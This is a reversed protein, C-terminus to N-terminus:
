RRRRRRQENRRAKPKAELGNGDAALRRALSPGASAPLKYLVVWMILGAVMMALSTYQNHTLVANRLNHANDDRIMELMFRTIPYLVLLMAFVQGERKRLRYFATLLGALLLANIIGLPQAPKVPASFSAEAAAIQEPGFDRPRILRGKEDTLRSDVRVYGKSMQDAYVPSPEDMGSSFPNDGGDLKLLPKSYMPFRIAPPWDARCTAGYCCGNLLCGARGFALGVMLSPALIDLYRRVPLRKAFLYVLAMAMALLVGGYYILGGATINVIEGLPNPSNAFQGTWHQIIYAIRAGVLGGVLSLLGIQALTDPNEGARRARRQALFIAILFGCAVMLGYGYIRLPISLGFLKLMGFDVIIRQM